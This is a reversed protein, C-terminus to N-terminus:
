ILVMSARLFHYDLDEKLLGLRTLVNVLTNILANMRAIRQRKAVDVFM